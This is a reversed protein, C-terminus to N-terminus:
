LLHERMICCSAHSEAQSITAIHQKPRRTATDTDNIKHKALYYTL